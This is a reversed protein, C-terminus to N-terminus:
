PKILARAERTALLVALHDPKRLVYNVRVRDPEPIALADVEALDARAEAVRGASWRARARVALALGRQMGNRATSVVDTLLSDLDSSCM